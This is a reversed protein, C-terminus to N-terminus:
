ITSVHPSTLGGAAIPGAPVRAAGSPLSRRPMSCSTVARRMIYYILAGVLLGLPISGALMPGFIPKALHVSATVLDLSGLSLAQWLSGLREPLDLPLALAELGLMHRGLAYSSGWIMPWSLPNGVFTAFVAAPISVRAALALLAALVMQAGLLPTVACFAGIAAGLAVKHPDHRLRLVRLGVYQLSRSWTRRPWFLIRVRERWPPPNRRKLLM